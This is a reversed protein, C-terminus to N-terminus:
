LRFFSFITFNLPIKQIKIIAKMRISFKFNYDAAPFTCQNAQFDTKQMFNICEYGKSPIHEQHKNSVIAYIETSAFLISISNSLM